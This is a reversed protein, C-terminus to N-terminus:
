HIWTADAWVNPTLLWVNNDGMGRLTAGNQVEIMGGTSSYVTCDINTNARGVRMEAGHELRVTGQVKVYHVALQVLENKIFIEPAAFEVEGVVYGKEASDFELVSIVNKDVEGAILNNGKLVVKNYNHYKELIDNIAAVDMKDDNVTLIIVQSGITGNFINTGNDYGTINGHITNEIVGVGLEANEFNFPDNIGNSNLVKITAYKDAQYIYGYNEVSLKCFNRIGENYQLLDDYKVAADHYGSMNIIGSMSVNTHNGALEKSGNIILNGQGFEDITQPYLAQYNVFQEEAAFSGYNEVQGVYYGDESGNVGNLIELTSNETVILKAIGTPCDKCDAINNFNVVTNIATTSEVTTERANMLIGDLMTGKLNLAGKNQVYAAGIGNISYPYREVDDSIIVAGIEMIAGSENYIGADAGDGTEIAANITLVGENVISHIGSNMFGAALAAELKDLLSVGDSVIGFIGNSKIDSDKLAEMFIEIAEDAQMIPEEIVQTGKNLINVRKTYFFLDIADSDLGEPFVLKGNKSEVFYIIAKGGKNSGKSENLDRVYDCLERTVEFDGLTTIYFIENTGMNYSSEYMKLYRLLDDSNSVTAFRMEQIKFDDFEVKAQLYTMESALDVKVLNFHGDNEHGPAPLDVYDGASPIIIGEKWTPGGITTNDKQLGYITFSYEKLYMNHPLALYAHFFDGNNLIYGDPADENEGTFDFTYEYVPEAADGKLGYPIFGNEGPYSYEVVSRAASRTWTEPNYTFRTYPEGCADTLEAADYPQAFAPGFDKYTNEKNWTSTGDLYKPFDETTNGDPRIYAITPMPDGDLRRMVIKQVIFSKEDSNEITLDVMGLIPRLQLPLMLQEGNTLEQNRYVQQYGLFFQNQEIGGRLQNYQGAPENGFKQVPNIYVWVDRRNRISGLDSIEMSTEQGNAPALAFYNGEVVADDNEWIGETRNFTFPINTQTYNHLSYMNNWVQQDKFDTENADLQEGNGAANGAENWDDMLFLGFREGDEWGIHEADGFDFRTNAGTTFAVKGVEVRGQLAANGNNVQVDFEDQTCAALLPLTLATLLYRTKMSYNKYKVIIKNLLTM